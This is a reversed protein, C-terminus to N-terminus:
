RADSGPVILGDLMRGVAAEFLAVDDHMRALLMAGELEGVVFRAIDIPTGDVRLSGDARGLEFVAALWAENADFFAVVPRQVLAPLTQYEAALMGCLCMRGRRVVDVYLQAFAALRTAADPQAADTDALARAFRDAYRVVLAQGLEAKTRFHYHLAAKTVDLEDAIDAYSYGNFGRTQVLREASDLIRESTDADPLHSSHRGSAQDVQGRM